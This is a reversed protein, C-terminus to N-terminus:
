KLISTEDQLSCNSEKPVISNVHTILKKYHSKFQRCTPNNNFGGIRRMCSFFTELHDQSLKYTLLYMMSNKKFVYQAIKLAGKMAILFGWFGIRRKSNLISINQKYKKDEIIRLSKIYNIYEDVKKEITEYNEQTICTKLDTNKEFKRRTNLIDFINNITECFKVTADVNAFDQPFTQKMFILADAVSKSFTQAALKVKMKEKQFNIHRQRIKTAPHLKHKEQIEVLKELFSWQITNGENDILDYEAVTNRILKLMHCADPIVVIPEKTVPHEFFSGEQINQLDAGLNKVMGLNTAAGDFTISIINSIGNDHLIVLSEKLINSREEATLSRILYYSIPTKFHANLAVLMIVLAYSAEDSEEIDLGLDVHGHYQKGDWEIAKKISMEDTQIGFELEIGKANYEEIMNKLNELVPKTIGPSFDYKCFWKRISQPHPLTKM